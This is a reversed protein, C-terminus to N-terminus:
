SKKPSEIKLIREIEEVSMGREIMTRKLESDAQHQLIRRCNVIVAILVGMVMAGVPIVIEPQRVLVDWVGPSAAAALFGCMGSSM